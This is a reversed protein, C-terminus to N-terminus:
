APLLVQSQQRILMNRFIGIGVMAAGTLAAACGWCHGSHGAAFLIPHIGNGATLCLELGLKYSFVLHPAAQIGGIIILATGAITLERQINLSKNRM